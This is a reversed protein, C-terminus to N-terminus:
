ARPNSRQPGFDPEPLNKKEKRGKLQFEALLSLHDSPFHYNPFGPVRKMYEPDVRGLLATVELANTSYWIHDIMGIFGPTYNTFTLEDPTDNLLSYASRLSFPHQIGDRTFHGYQYNVLDPHDPAVRGTSLLKYVSSDPTSNLDTCLVLPLQASSTYEMSEVLAELDEDEDATTYRKKDKSAPWSVYKSNLLKSLYEMLIAIQILKVDPYAPNWFIHTNVIVIRAGTLRNEFFTVVAIDDRPMVRNYIDHQNKMDPRHIAINAFDVVQKDLLIYKSSKYFTASGDAVKADKESMTKSRTKPWFIGKYDAYALKLSFFEEFSNTNVEQLCVFDPDEGQIEQLILEKRYDWALAALPTYPYQQINVYNDCLVNYAFVKFRDQSTVPLGDQLYVMSREPPPLPVPAEERLHHILSKTGREVIEQKISNELPNGEIGLMELQYLFGLEGPLSRINNDFILLNKLYVCMGLEPPLDTLHNSSIDLHRLQRLQGIAAPLQSLKNSALYLENLFAYSSFLPTAIIRLGLGSMDMSLWDQRNTGSDTDSSRKRHEAEGDPSTSDLVRNEGAKTRAFYHPAHQEMMTTHARQSENYLKLQEAWHENIQQAQGGRTAASSQLSAPTFSPTSNSLGGSPYSSDHSFINVNASQGSSEQHLTPHHHTNQQQQRQNQQQYNYIMQMRGHQGQQHGQGYMSYPNQAASLLDPSRSPPPTDTNFDSRIPPTENRASRRTHSHSQTHQPYYYNGAGQQPFRYGDAM